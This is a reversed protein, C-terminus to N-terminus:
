PFSFQFHFRFWFLFVAFIAVFAIGFFPDCGGAYSGGGVSPGRFVSKTSTVTTPHM